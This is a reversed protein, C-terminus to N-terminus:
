FYSAHQILVAAKESKAFSYSRLYSYCSIPSKASITMEGIDLTCEIAVPLYREIAGRLTYDREIEDLSRDQYSKLLRIYKELDNLRDAIEQIKM